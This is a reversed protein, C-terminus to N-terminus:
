RIFESSESAYSPLLVEIEDRLLQRMILAPMAEAEVTGTIHLSRRDTTKRPKTPLDYFEIQEPTIGIRRLFSSTRTSIRECSASLHWM